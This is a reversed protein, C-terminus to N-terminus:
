VAFQEAYGGGLKRRLRADSNNNEVATEVENFWGTVKEGPQAFKERVAELACDWVDWPGLQAGDHLTTSGVIDGDRVVTFGYTPVMDGTGPHPQIGIAFTHIRLM